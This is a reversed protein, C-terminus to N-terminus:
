EELWVERCTAWCALQRGSYVRSFASVASLASLDTLVTRNCAEVIFHQDIGLKAMSTAATAKNTGAIGNGLHLSLDSNDLCAM